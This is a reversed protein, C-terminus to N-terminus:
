KRGNEAKKYYTMNKQAKVKNCSFVLMLMSIIVMLLVVSLSIVPNFGGMTGDGQYNILGLGASIPYLSTLGHGSAFMGVFGYFFAFAVGAMFSGARQSTFVIIPLVAIYVCINIGVMQLLSHQIAGIGIGPYGSIFVVILAFVCEIIALLIAILCAALLKGTLLRRFSIPLTLLNKMTDDTREREMIYGAILTITAPYILTLNNWIVNNSFTEFTHVAGDSAIGMFRTLLVVSLMAAIGIWIVSYRKLKWLETKVLRLM